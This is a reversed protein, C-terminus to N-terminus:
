LNESLLPEDERDVCGNAEIQLVYKPGQLKLRLFSCCAAGQCSCCSSCSGCPMRPLLKNRIKETCLCFLICNAGGQFTNGIGHLVLLVPNNVASSGTLTLVFRVTSWLRLLVFVLPIFTLKRDVKVMAAVASRQFRYCDQARGQAYIHRKMAIYLAPLIFYALIEWLKGTLLMWLLNDAIDPTTLKVWCWGVSVESRDYGLKQLGAACAVVALPVGWSVVHFYKTLSGALQTDTKVITIYLYIAISVTWFFSSTGMFTSVISQAICDVSSDVFDTYVGYFLAIATWFDTLSLFVLLRRSTTRIDKWAFFTVIILASGLISLACSTLTTVKIWFPLRPIIVAPTVHIDGATTQLELEM